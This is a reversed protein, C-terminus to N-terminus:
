RHDAGERHTLDGDRGRRAAAAAAEQGAAARLELGSGAPVDLKVPGVETLVTKPRTGNRSNGGDRGAIAHKDYGLHETLEAELGAELVRKTLGTLVGDPGVLDLGRESAEAVLREALERDEDSRAAPEQEVGSPTDQGTDSM